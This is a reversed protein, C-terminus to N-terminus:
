RVLLSMFETVRFAELRAQDAFLTNLSEVQSDSLKGAISKEFKKVLVSISRPALRTWSM